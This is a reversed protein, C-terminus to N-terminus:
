SRSRAPRRSTFRRLDRYITDLGPVVGRALHVFLPDARCRRSASYAISVWVVADFLLRMQAAMQYV